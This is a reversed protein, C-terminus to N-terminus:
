TLRACFVSIKVSTIISRDMTFLGLPSHTFDVATALFKLHMLEEKGDDADRFTPPIRM